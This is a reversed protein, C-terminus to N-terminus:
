KPLACEFAGKLNNEREQGSLKMQPITNKIKILCNSILPLRWEQELHRAIEEAQNFGRSKLKKKELPVPVLVFDAPVQKEILAFHSVILDSLSKGLEKVYPAYKCAQILKKVLLAEYDTACYLGDLTKDQCLSCQGAQPLRSPKLCLCFCSKLVDITALCDPCLYEGQRQCGFCFKPFFSEELFATIRRFLTQRNEQLM